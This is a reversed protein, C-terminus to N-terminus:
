HRHRQNKSAISGSQATHSINNDTLSYPHNNFKNVHCYTHIATVEQENTTRGEERVTSQKKAEAYGEEEERDM